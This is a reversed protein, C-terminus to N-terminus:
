CSLSMIRIAKLLLEPSKGLPGTTLFEGQLAPSEPEMGPQPFLIRCATSCRLGLVLVITYAGWHFIYIVCCLDWMGCSLGLAALYIFLVCVCFNTLPETLLKFGPNLNLLFLCLSGHSTQQLSGPLRHHHGPSPHCFLHTIVSSHEVYIWHFHDSAPCLPLHALHIQPHNRPKQSCCNTSHHTM